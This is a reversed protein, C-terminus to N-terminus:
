FTNINSGRNNKKIKKLVDRFGGDPKMMGRGSHILPAGCLWNIHRNKATYEEAEAISMVKTFKKKTRKNYFHFLGM